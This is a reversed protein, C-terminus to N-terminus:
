ALFLLFDKGQAVGILTVQPYTNALLYTPWAQRTCAERAM